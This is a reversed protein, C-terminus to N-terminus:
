NQDASPRRLSTMKHEQKRNKLRRLDVLLVTKFVFRPPTLSWFQVVDNDLQSGLASPPLVSLNLGVKKKELLSVGGVGILCPCSFYLM